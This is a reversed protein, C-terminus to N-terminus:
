AAHRQLALITLDDSREQGGLLTGLDALCSRILDRPAEARYRALVGTLRSVGYEEDRLGVAETLGDTYLLLTDGEALTIREM